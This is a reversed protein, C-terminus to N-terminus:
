WHLRNEFFSIIRIKHMDRYTLTVNLGSLHLKVENLNFFFSAMLFFQAQKQAHQTRSPRERCCIVVWGARLDTRM